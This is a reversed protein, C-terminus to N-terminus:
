RPATQPSRTSPATARPVGLPVHVSHERPQAQQSPPPAGNDDDAPPTGLDTFAALGIIVLIFVGVVIGVFARERPRSARQNRAVIEELKGM